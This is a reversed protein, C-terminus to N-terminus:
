FVYLIKLHEMKIYLVEYTLIYKMIINCILLIEYTLM